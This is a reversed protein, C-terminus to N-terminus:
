APMFEFWGNSILGHFHCKELLLKLDINVCLDFQVLQKSHPSIVRCYAGDPIFCCTGFKTKLIVKNNGHTEAQLKHKRSYALLKNYLPHKLAKCPMRSLTTLRFIREKLLNKKMITNLM